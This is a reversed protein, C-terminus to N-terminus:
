EYESSNPNVVFRFSTVFGYLKPGGSDSAFRVSGPLKRAQSLRYTSRGQVGPGWPQIKQRLLIKRGLLHPNDPGGEWGTV